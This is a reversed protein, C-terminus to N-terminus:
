KKLLSFNCSNNKSSGAGAKRTRRLVNFGLGGPNLDLSRGNM